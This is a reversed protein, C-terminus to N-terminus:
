EGCHRVKTINLLESQNIQIPLQLLRFTHGNVCMSGLLSDLNCQGHTCYQQISIIHVVCSHYHPRGKTHSIIIIFDTLWCFQSTSIHISGCLYYDEMTKLCSKGILVSLNQTLSLTNLFRIQYQRDGAISLFSVQVFYTIVVNLNM